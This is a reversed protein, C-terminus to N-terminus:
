AKEKLLQIWALAQEFLLEQQIQNKSSFSVQLIQAYFKKWSEIHEDSFNKDALYNLIAVDRSEKVNNNELLQNFMQMFIPYLRHVEQQQVAITYAKKAQFFIRYKKLGQHNSLYKKLSIRYGILAIWILFLLALVYKFWTVPIMKETSAAVFEQQIVSFDKLEKPGFENDEFIDDAVQNDSKQTSEVAPSITIDDIKNSKITKYAKAIPDFYILSQSEISYTGPTTAQVIFECRKYTRQEDITVMNSDYYQFGEPLILQPSPMMEFNADGFIEVSLVIGQGVPATNQNLSIVFKSIQGVTTVNDIDKHYPLPLVDIGIPQAAIHQQSKHLSRFFDFAGGFKFKSELEPAFFAAHIDQIILQGDKTPYMDFVWETLSYEEEDILVTSKNIQNKNKVFYLNQFDPFQLHLDEVFLRDYFKVSLTLKEGVYVQKKNLSMTMFYTDKANKESALIEDGVPVILRNSKIQQGIKDNLILPGLTFKGKKDARLVFNYFTKVIKKGNYMSVNHSTMSRSSKFNDIGSIYQMLHVDTYGDLNKLEVQLIFPAKCMAQTIPKHNMDQMSLVISSESAVIYNSALLLLFAVVKGVKKEM